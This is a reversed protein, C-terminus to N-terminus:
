KIKEVIVKKRNVVYIYNTGGVRVADYGLEKAYKGVDYDSLGKDILEQKLKSFSAIKADEALKVKSVYGSNYKEATKQNTTLYFGSGYEHKQIYFEGEQFQKAYEKNEFGHYMINDGDIKNVVKPLDSESRLVDAVSEGAKYRAIRETAQAVVNTIIENQELVEYYGKKWADYNHVKILQHNENDYRVNEDEIDWRPISLLVCRCNVNQGASRFGHPRMVEIGDVKFPEDIEAIQQDLKRHLERTKGDLTADWQKVLDAGKNRAEKMADLKAESSVRGGETRVIRYTKNLDVGSVNTINRAMEDYSSGVAIGRSIESLVTKKFDDNNKYLRDKFNLKATPTNVVDAMLKHNIPMIVPIGKQQLHYNISLFSDEYMTELFSQVNKVNDRKLVDLTENLQEELAKQYDRQYIKSRILSENDPKQETLERIQEDLRKIEKKVDNLANLYTGKLNNFAEKEHELLQKETEKQYKDM